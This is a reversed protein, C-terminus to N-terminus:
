WHPLDAGSGLPHLCGVFAEVISPDFQRGSGARLEVIAAEGSLAKRYPRDTTMASYADAVALIRGVLPIDDGALGEPYGTGDYHEHHSIVAARIDDLDHLGAILREGLAAHGKVVTQEESTLREPKLLIRDPIGIRGVDHLLGATRVVRLSDDSLGLAEAVALAYLTVEDSHHRTYNDKSDIAAVLSELLGIHDDAEDQRRLCRAKTTVTDGGRRKSAYLRADAALMLDNVDRGDEPYGAIGISARIPIRDGAPSVFPAASLLSRLEEILVEAERPTTEPLVLVFEDGGYRGAVDSVRTNDRLIKAVRRLVVDGVPHGYSDNFRKFGDIDLMVLSFRSGHREARAHERLLLEHLKRHNALGTLSDTESLHRLQRVLRNSRVASGALEGLGTALAMEDDSFRRERRSDWFVLLGMPGDISRMPVTLRTGAGRRDMVRKREPRLRADSITELLPTESVLVDRETPHDDLPLLDHLGDSEATSQGWAARAVIADSAQRYEYAVCKTVGLVEGARQAVITLADVLTAAESVAQSSELLSVLKDAQAQKASLAGADLISLAILPCVSDATAAQTHTIDRGVRTERIEVLGVDTGRAVLPVILSTQGTRLADAPTGRLVRAESRDSVLRPQRTRVAEAAAPWSALSVPRNSRERRPQPSSVWALCTLDGDGDLRFVHVEPVDLLRSLRIAASAALHEPDLSTLTSSIDTVAGHTEPLPSQSRHLAAFLWALLEAVGVCVLAVFLLSTLTTGIDGTRSHVSLIYAAALLPLTALGTGRVYGIGIVAFVIWYFVSLVYPDHSSFSVGAAILALGAPVLLYTTWRPWADWPLYLAVAGTTMAALATLVLGLTSGSHDGPLSLSAVAILGCVVFLIASVRGVLGKPIGADNQGEHILRGGSKLARTIGARSLRPPLPVM